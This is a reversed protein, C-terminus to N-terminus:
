YDYLCGPWWCEDTPYQNCYDNCEQTSCSEECSGFKYCTITGGCGNSPTYKRIRYTPGSVGWKSDSMSFSSCSHPVCNKVCSGNNCSYGSACGGCCASTSICSGNCDKMGKESCTKARCSYHTTGNCDKCSSTQVQDSSCSSTQGSCSASGGAACDAVCSSGSQHYGSNCKWGSNITKTGSCDTCSSTTYSSNAPKSSIGSCTPLSCGSCCTRTGGCGNSCSYTGYKCGTENAQPSCSSCCTRTGGCGDSCSYTGYSCGTENSYPRCCGGNYSRYGSNCSWGTNITHSGSCDSCSSTTYSSNAPKSTVKNACNPLNCAKCITRTGGCGDSESTTGYLCGSANAKPTCCSGGYCVQSASCNCCASLSICTGNCDKMGKEACTKPRCSYHTAGFCDKCSSTQVQDSNCPSTQGSCSASGGSACPKCVSRTGGCNNTVSNTGWQCGTEGTLPTCSKSTCNGDCYQTCTDNPNVLSVTAPCLCREAKGDCQPSSKYKPAPCSAINFQPLCVCETYYGPKFPCRSSQVLARPYTCNKSNYLTSSTACNGVNYNRGIDKFNGFGRDYTDGGLFSIGSIQYAESPIPKLELIHTYTHSDTDQLLPAHELVPWDSAFVPQAFLLAAALLAPKFFKFM